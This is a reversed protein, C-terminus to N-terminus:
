KLKIINLRQIENKRERYVFFDIIKLVQTSILNVHYQSSSSHALCKNPVIRSETEQGRERVANMKM